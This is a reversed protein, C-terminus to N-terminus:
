KRVCRKASSGPKPGSKQGRQSQRPSQVRQEIRIEGESEEESVEMQSSELNERVEEAEEEYEYDQFEDYIPDDWQTYYDHVHDQSDDLHKSEGPYLLLLKKEIESLSLEEDRASEVASQM